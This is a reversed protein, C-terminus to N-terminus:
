DMSINYVQQPSDVYSSEIINIISNLKDNRLSMGSFSQSTNDAPLFKGILIGTALAVGLVIPLFISRRSNNYNM